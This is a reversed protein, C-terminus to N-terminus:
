KGGLIKEGLKTSFGDIGDRLESLAAEAQGALAARNEELLQRASQQANGVISRLEELGSNKGEERNLGAQKRAEALEDEYAKLRAMAEAHFQDAESALNDMMGNRKKIIERIPRIILINLFFLAILFNVLQIVLTINLDLM